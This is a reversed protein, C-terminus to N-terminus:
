AYGRTVNVSSNGGSRSDMLTFIGTGPESHRPAPCERAGFGRWGEHRLWCVLARDSVAVHGPCVASICGREETVHKQNRRQYRRGEQDTGCKLM